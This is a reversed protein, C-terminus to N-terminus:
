AFDRVCHFDLGFLSETLAFTTGWIIFSYLCVSYACSVNDSWDMEGYVARVLYFM